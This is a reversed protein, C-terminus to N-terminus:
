TLMSLLQELTMFYPSDYQSYGLFELGDDDYRVTLGCKKCRRTQYEDNNELVDLPKHSPENPIRGDSCPRDMWPTGSEGDDADYYIKLNRRNRSM